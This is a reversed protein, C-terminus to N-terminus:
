TGAVVTEWTQFPLPPMGLRARLRASIGMAFNKESLFNFFRRGQPSAHFDDATSLTNAIAKAYEQVNEPAVVVGLSFRPVIEGMWGADAAIVPRGLVAARSVIASPATHGVYACGVVNLACLAANLEDDALIRDVLIIRGALVLEPFLRDIQARLHPEVRGALLVRARQSFDSASFATLLEVVGKRGDLYGVSGIYLGDEPIGLVRRAFGRPLSPSDEAFDPLARLKKALAGGKARIGEYGVTDITHIIKAASYGMAAAVSSMKVRRLGHSKYGAGCRLLIPEVEAMGRRPLVRPLLHTVSWLPFVGDADPIFVHDPSQAKIAKVLQSVRMKTEQFPTGSLAQVWDAVKVRADLGNLHQHFEASEHAQRSTVLSLEIPLQSVAAIIHKVYVFHHGAWRPEFIMVRM